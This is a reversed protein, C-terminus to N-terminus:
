AHHVESDTYLDARTWPVSNNQGHAIVTQFLQMGGTRFTAISANLYLRWMRVFPADFMQEIQDAHSEFNDRWCELTRAYHLRLNEIDLVSFDHTEFIDMMQRLSPPCGGPFIRKETWRDIPTAINRGITHLLALGEPKLSRYIVDGLQRFNEPGVHELMGVSVFADFQGQISRWDDEVIKVCQDLGLSRTRDRAYAVQKRSINYAVVSVGYERALHLALGGWGCGAEVVRMGPRLRLKRAVHDFKARQASDLDMEPDAFYACTYAMERDLWLQYFENGLDYHHQIHNKAATRTNPSLWHLWNWRHNTFWHPARRVSQELRECFQALDGSVTIEGQSYGDGFGMVPDFLLSLLTRRSAISVRTRGPSVAQSVVEGNWLVLDVSLGPTMSLLRRALWYDSQTPARRGPGTEQPPISDNDGPLDLSDSDATEIWPSIRHMLSM